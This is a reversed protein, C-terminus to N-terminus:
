LDYESSVGCRFLDAKAENLTDIVEAAEHFKGRKNLSALDNELDEIESKLERARRYNPRLVSPYTTM